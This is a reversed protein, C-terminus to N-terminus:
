VKDKIHEYMMNGMKEGMKSDSKYHAKAVRRSYSINKGAQEFAKKAQPYKDSLVKSILIGQVSHGSPYSPTKMSAMEIDNLKINMKKALVKPRPRNFHKKVKLIISPSTRPGLLREGPVIRLRTSDWLELGSSVSNPPAQEVVQDRASPADSSKSEFDLLKKRPKPPLPM